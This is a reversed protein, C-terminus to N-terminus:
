DNRKGKDIDLIRGVKQVKVGNANCAASISNFEAESFNQITIFLEDIRRTKLINALKHRTGLVSIGRIKKGVKEKDDDIFGIVHYRLGQNRKIERVLAEGTNGAGLVIVRKEKSAVAFFYETLIPITVRVGTALFLLILWDLIFIARSYDIFRFLFTVSVIILLSSLSVAKFISIVDTVSMYPWIRSYIGFSFFCLLKIAIVLPLSKGILSAVAEPIRGDYKLLYASHYAIYILILDVVVELFNRKYLLVTNLIVNGSSIKKKRANELEEEKEYVKVESLFVGFFFMVILILAAFISVILIDIKTYLLAILGFLFSLFYLLVVTKRESLGLTVLRHSTHDRGGEWFARGKLNRIVMVFITDFIPVALILVPIILTLVINSVHRYSDILPLTALSFGLFMSGSDGMYIKAPNFNYPLFGLAAAALILAMIATTYNNSLLSSIFVMLSCIVATGAALGDMNDLLNFANTIGIIWLMTLAYSLPQNSFFQFSIGFFIVICCAIIQGLLKVQPRMPRFDDSLGWLFIFTAASLFLLITKTLPVFAFFGFLAAIFIGVGGLLATIRRHFRNDKPKVVLKYKLAYSRVIPTLLLSAFFTVFFVKIFDIIMPNKM